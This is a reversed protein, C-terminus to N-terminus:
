PQRAVIRFVEASSKKIGMALLYLAKLVIARSQYTGHYAEPFRQQKMVDGQEAANPWDMIRLM